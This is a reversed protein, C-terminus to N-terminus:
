VSARVGLRNRCAAANRAYIKSRLIATNGLLYPVGILRHSRRAGSIGDYIRYKVYLLSEAGDLISHSTSAISASSHSHILTHEM